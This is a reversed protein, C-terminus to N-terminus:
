PGKRGGRFRVMRPTYTIPLQKAMKKRHTYMPCLIKPFQQPQGSTTVMPQTPVTAQITVPQVCTVRTAAQQIPIAVLAPQTVTPNKSMTKVAKAQALGNYQFM